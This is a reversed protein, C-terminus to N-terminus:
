HWIFLSPTGPDFSCDCIMAEDQGTKGNAHGRFENTPIHIYRSLIAQLIDPTECVQDPHAGPVHQLDLLPPPYKPGDQDMASTSGSVSTSSSSSSSALPTAADPAAGVADDEEKVQLAGTTAPTSIVPDM